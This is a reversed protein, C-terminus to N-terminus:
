VASGRNGLAAAGIRNLRTNRSVCQCCLGFATTMEQITIIFQIVEHLCIVEPTHESADSNLLSVSTADGIDQLALAAVAFM